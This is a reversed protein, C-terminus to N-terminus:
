PRIEHRKVGGKRGGAQRNPCIEKEKTILFLYIPECGHPCILDIVGGDAIIKPYVFRREINHKCGTMEM